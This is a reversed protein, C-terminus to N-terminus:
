LPQAPEESLRELVSELYHQLQGSETRPAGLEHQMAVLSLGDDLRGRERRREARAEAPAGRGISALLAPARTRASACHTHWVLAM